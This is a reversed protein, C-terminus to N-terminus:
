DGRFIGRRKSSVGLFEAFYKHLIGPFEPQFYFKVIISFFRMRFTGLNLNAKIM